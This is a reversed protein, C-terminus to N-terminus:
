RTTRAKSAKAVLSEAELRFFRIADTFAPAEKMTEAYHERTPAPVIRKELWQRLVGGNELDLMRDKHARVAARIATADNSASDREADMWRVSWRGFSEAREDSLVSAFKLQGQEGVPPDLLDDSTKRFLGEYKQRALAVRQEAWLDADRGGPEQSAWTGAALGVAACGIVLLISRRM